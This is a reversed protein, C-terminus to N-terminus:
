LLIIDNGVCVPPKIIVLFRDMVYQVWNLVWDLVKVTTLQSIWPFEIFVPKEWLIVSGNSGSSGTTVMRWDSQTAAQKAMDLVQLYNCDKGHYMINWRSRVVVQGDEAFVADKIISCERTMPVPFRSKRQNWASPLSSDAKTLSVCRCTWDLKYLKIESYQSSVVLQTNWPDYSLVEVSDSSPFPSLHLAEQFKRSNKARNYIAVTGRGTRWKGIVRWGGFFVFLKSKKRHSGAKCSIMYVTLYLRRQIARLAIQPRGQYLAKASRCPIPVILVVVAIFPFNIVLGDLCLRHWLVDLDLETRNKDREEDWQVTGKNYGVLLYDISIMSLIMHTDAEADQSEGSGEIRRMM